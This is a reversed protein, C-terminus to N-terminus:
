NFIIIALSQPFLSTTLHTLEWNNRCWSVVKWIFNIKLLLYKGLDSIKLLLNSRFLLIEQEDEPLYGKGNKSFCNPSDCEGEEFCALKIYIM